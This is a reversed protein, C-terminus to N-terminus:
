ENMYTRVEVEVKGFSIFRGFETNGCAKFVGGGDGVEFAFKQEIDSYESLGSGNDLLYSGSIFSGESFSGKDVGIGLTHNYALDYWEDENATIVLPKDKELVKKGALSFTNLSSTFATDSPIGSTSSVWTGKWEFANNAGDVLAIVLCIL